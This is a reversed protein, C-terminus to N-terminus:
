WLISIGIGYRIARILTTFPTNNNYIFCTLSTPPYLRPKAALVILASCATGDTVSFDTESGDKARITGTFGMQLLSM